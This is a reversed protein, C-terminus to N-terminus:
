ITDTPNTISSETPQTEPTSVEPETVPETVPEAVGEEAGSPAEAPLPEVAPEETPGPEPTPEPVPETQPTEIICGASCGDGSVSNGDDCTETANVIGDGCYPEGVETPTGVATPVTENGEVLVIWYDFSMPESMVDSMKIIFGEGPIKESIYWTRGGTSSTFSVLVKSNSEVLKNSVKYEITNTPITASGIVNDKDKGVVIRLVSTVVEDVVLKFANIVGDVITVGLDKLADVIDSVGNSIAELVNSDPNGQNTVEAGVSETPTGVGEPTPLEEQEQTPALIEGETGIVAGNEDLNLGNINGYYVRGEETDIYEAYAPLCVANFLIIIFITYIIKKM